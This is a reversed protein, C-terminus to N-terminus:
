YLARADLEMDSPSDMEDEDIDPEMDEVKEKLKELSQGDKLDTDAESLAM